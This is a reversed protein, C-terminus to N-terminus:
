KKYGCRNKDDRLSETFDSFSFPMSLGICSIAIQKLIEWITERSFFGCKEVSTVVNPAIKEEKQRSSKDESQSDCTGTQNSLSTTM